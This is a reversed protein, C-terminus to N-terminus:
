LHNLIARIGSAILSENNLRIGYSIDLFGSLSAYIIARENINPDNMYTLRAVEKAFDPGFSVNLESIDYAPDGIMMGGWDLIGSIQGDKRSYLINWGGFDGHIPVEKFSDQRISMFTSDLFLRVENHLYLPFRSVCSKRYEDLMGKFAKIWKEGRGNGSDGFVDEPIENIRRLNESLSEAVKRREYSSLESFLSREGYHLPDPQILPMGEIIEYIGTTLNNYYCRHIYHPIQIGTLYSRIRETIYIDRDLEHSAQIDRAFKMIYKGNISYLISNWGRSFLRIESIESEPFLGRFIESIHNNPVTEM